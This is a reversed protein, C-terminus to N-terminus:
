NGEKEDGVFRVTAGGCTLQHMARLAFDAAPSMWWQDRGVFIITGRKMGMLKYADKEQNMPHLLKPNVDNKLAWQTAQHLTAGIVAYSESAM